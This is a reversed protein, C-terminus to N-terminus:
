ENNTDTVKMACGENKIKKRIQLSLVIQMM